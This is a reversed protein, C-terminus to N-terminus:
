RKAAKVICDYLDSSNEYYFLHKGEDNENAQTKFTITSHATLVRQDFICKLHASSQFMDSQKWLHTNLPFVSIVRAYNGKFSCHCWATVAIRRNNQARASIMESCRMM